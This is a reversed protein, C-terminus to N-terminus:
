IYMALLFWQSVTGQGVGQWDCCVQELYPMHSRFYGLVRLPQSGVEALGM